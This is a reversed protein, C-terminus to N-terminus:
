VSVIPIETLFINISTGKYNKYKVPLDRDTKWTIFTRYDVAEAHNDMFVMNCKGRTVAATDLTSGSYERPDPVGHRFGMRDIGKRDAMSNNALSRNDSFILAQSPQTLCNLKRNFTSLSTRANTTGTLFGNIMYHTYSFLNNNYSGFDVPESPCDFAPSKKRGKNKGSYKLNYGACLPRYNGKPAYGSLVGYWMWSEWEIESLDPEVGYEKMNAPLLWDKYDSVYLLHATGIQKLKSTCAISRATEKARNLAPLLMAALIAIIAIVVLLEILTFRKATKRKLYSLHPILSSTLETQKKM